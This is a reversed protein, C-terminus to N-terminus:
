GNKDYQTEAATVCKQLTKERFERIIFLLMPFKRQNPYKVGSLLKFVLGM